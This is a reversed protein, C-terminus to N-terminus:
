RVYPDLGTTRLPRKTRNHKEFGSEPKWCFLAGNLTRKFRFINNLYQVSKKLPGLTLNRGAATIQICPNLKKFLASKRRIHFRSVIELCGHGSNIRLTLESRSGNM